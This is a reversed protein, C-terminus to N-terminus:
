KKKRRSLGIILIVLMAAGFAIQRIATKRKRETNEKQLALLGDVNININQRILATDIEPMSILPSDTKFPLSDARATQQHPAATSDGPSALSAIPLLLLLNLLLKRM